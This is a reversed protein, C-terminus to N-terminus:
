NQSATPEWSKIDSVLTCNCPGVLFNSCIVVTEWAPRVFFLKTERKFLWVTTLNPTRYLGTIHLVNHPPAAHWSQGSHNEAWLCYLRVLTKQRMKIVLKFVPQRPLKFLLIPKWSSMLSLFTVVPQPIALFYDFKSRPARTDHVGCTSSRIVLVTYSNLITRFIM